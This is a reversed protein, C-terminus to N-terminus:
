DCSLPSSVSSSLALPHGSQKGTSIVSRLTSRCAVRTGSTTERERERERKTEETAQRAHTRERSHPFLCRTCQRGSPLTLARWQGNNPQKRTFERLWQARFLVGREHRVGSLPSSEKERLLSITAPLIEHRRWVRSMITIVRLTFPCRRAVDRLPETPHRAARQSRRPIIPLALSNAESDVLRRSSLLIARRASTFATQCYGHVTRSTKRGRCTPCM